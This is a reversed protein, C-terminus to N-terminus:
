PKTSGPSERDRFGVYGEGRRLEDYWKMLLGIQMEQIAVKKLTDSFEKFETEMKDLQNSMADLTFQTGTEQGGRKYLFSAAVILAAGLTLFDGIKVTWEFTIGM